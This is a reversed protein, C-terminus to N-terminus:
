RMNKISNKLELYQMADGIESDSNMLSGVFVDLMEDDSGAKSFGGMVFTILAVLLLLLLLGIVIGVFGNM